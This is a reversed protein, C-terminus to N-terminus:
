GRSIGQQFTLGSEQSAPADLQNQQGVPVPLSIPGQIGTPANPIGPIRTALNPPAFQSGKQKPPEPCHYWLEWSAFFIPIGSADGVTVPGKVRQPRDPVLTVGGYSVLGPIPILYAARIAYGYLGFRYTSTAMRQTFDDQTSNSYLPASITASFDRLGNVSALSDAVEDATPLGKQLILGPDLDSVVWCQYDLWSLQPAPAGPLLVGVEPRSQNDM